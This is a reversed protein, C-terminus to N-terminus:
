YVKCNKRIKDYQICNKLAKEHDCSYVQFDLNLMIPESENRKKENVTRESGRFMYIVKQTIQLRRLMKSANSFASAYKYDELLDKQLFLKLFVQIASIQCPRLYTKSTFNM